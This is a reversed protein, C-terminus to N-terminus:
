NKLHDFTKFYHHSILAVTEFHNAQNNFYHYWSHGIEGKPMIFRSFPIILRFSARLTVIQVSKAVALKIQPSRTCAVIGLASAIRGARLIPREKLQHTKHKCCITQVAQYNDNRICRCYSLKPPM